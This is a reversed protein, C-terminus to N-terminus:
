KNSVNKENNEENYPKAKKGFLSFHVFRKPNLKMERLLEELEKSANTLNTYMKEDTMLKGLTGKGSKMDALLTNVNVLTTELKKVTEGLNAKALDESVKSFNDTINKANQLTSDLNSKNDAVLSNVSSLTKRVDYITGELGLISRNLSKRSKEDLIQNIGILLSDAGVLVNELKAQIPNLKEGVSSFIDSEVEGKLYDGSKAIEGDYKPVIALNQGGMLSASYIKAISNKSFEFDTDLSIKVILKGRKEPQENFYIQDVKGVKLGNITVLSAENLGNINNYEVFFQRTNASFLDQGKLFNYGWIFLAIVIVAVIGTKLEKSM